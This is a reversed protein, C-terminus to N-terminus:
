EEWRKKMKEVIEASIGHINRAALEELSLLTTVTLITVVYGYQKAMEVYPTMEWQQTFTNSIPIPSLGMKMHEECQDRCWKHADRIKSPDYKYSGDPQNFYMDAELYFAPALQRAITSKGSGPLGRVLYLVKEM